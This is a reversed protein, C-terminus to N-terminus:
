PHTCVLAANSEVPMRFRAHGDSHSKLTRPLAVMGTDLVGDQELHSPASGGRLCPVSSFSQAQAAANKLLGSIQECYISRLSAQTRSNKLSGLAETEAPSGLRNYGAATPAQTGAGGSLTQGNNGISAKQWSRANEVDYAASLM